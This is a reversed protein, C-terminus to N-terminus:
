CSLLWEGDVKMMGQVGPLPLQPPTELELIAETGRANTWVEGVRFATPFTYGVDELGARAGNVDTETVKGCTIDVLANADDIRGEDLALLHAEFAAAPGPANSAGSCVLVTVALMLIVVGIGGILAPWTYVIRIDNM